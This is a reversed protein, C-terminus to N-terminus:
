NTPEIHDYKSIISRLESRQCHDTRGGHEANGPIGDWTLMKKKENWSLDFRPQDVMLLHFRFGSETVQDIRGRLARANPWDYVVRASSTDFTVFYGDQFACKISFQEAYARSVFLANTVIILGTIWIAFRGITRFIVFTIM